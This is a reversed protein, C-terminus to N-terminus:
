KRIQRPPMKPPQSFVRTLNSKKIQEFLGQMSTSSFVPNEIDGIKYLGDHYKIIHHKYGKDPRKFSFVYNGSENIRILYTNDTKLINQAEDRNMVRANMVPANRRVAYRILKEISSSYGLTYGSERIEFYESDSNYIIKLHKFTGNNNISLVLENDTNFRLLYSYEGQSTLIGEAQERTLARQGGAIFGKTSLFENELIKRIENFNVARQVHNTNNEEKLLHTLQDVTKSDKAALSNASKFKELEQVKAKLNPYATSGYSTHTELNFKLIVEGFNRVSPKQLSGGIRNSLEITKSILEELKKIDQDFHTNGRMQHFQKKSIEEDIKKFLGIAEKHLISAVKEAESSKNTSSSKTSILFSEYKTKLTKFQAEYDPSSFFNSTTKNINTM